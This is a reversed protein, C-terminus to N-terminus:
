TLDSGTSIADLTSQPVPKVTNWNFWFRDMVAPSVVHRKQGNSVLYVDQMTEQAIALYAGSTLAPGSAVSAPDVMQIGSSDRFLNSYTTPDPIHRATGDDDVLYIDPSGSAEIRAGALDQRPAPAPTPAVTPTPIATPTATPVSCGAAQQPANPAISGGNVGSISAGCAVSITGFNTAPGFIDLEGGNVNITGRNTLSLRNNLRAHNNINIIAGSNVILDEEAVVAVMSFTLTTGSAVTYLGLHCTPNSWTPPPNTQLATCSAQDSVTTTTTAASAAAPWLALPLLLALLRPGLSRKLGPRSALADPVAPWRSRETLAPRTEAPETPMIQQKYTTKM